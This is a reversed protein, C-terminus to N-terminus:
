RFRGTIEQIEPEPPLLSQWRPDSPYLLVLALLDVGFVGILRPDGTVIWAVLPFLAAAECLSWAVVLRSFATAASGARFPGLRAPLARSLAILAASTGVTLWFLLATAERRGGGQRSADALAMFFFPVVLMSGWVLTAARRTVRASV